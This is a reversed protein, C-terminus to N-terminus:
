PIWISLPSMGENVRVYSAHGIALGTTTLSLKNLPTNDWVQSLNHLVPFSSNLLDCFKAGRAFSASFTGLLSQRTENSILGRIETDKLLHLADDSNIANIQLNGNSNLCPILLKTKVFELEEPKVIERLENEGFGFSFLGGYNHLMIKEFNVSTLEVIGCGCASLHQFSSDHSSVDKLYETIVPLFSLNLAQASPIAPNRTYRVFFCVCLAAIENRTLKPLVELASNTALMERSRDSIRSRSVILDILAKGLAEDGSRAFERAAHRTVFQFDPDAFAKIDGPRKDVFRAFLQSEFSHLRQDVMQM